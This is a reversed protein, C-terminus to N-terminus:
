RRRGGTNSCQYCISKDCKSVVNHSFGFSSAVVNATATFYGMSAGQLFALAALVAVFVRHTAFRQLCAPEWYYGNMGLGCHLQKALLRAPARIDKDLAENNHILMEPRIMVETGQLV